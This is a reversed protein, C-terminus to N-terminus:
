EVKVVIYGLEKGKKNYITVSTTGASLGYVILKKGKKKIEASVVSPDSPEALYAKKKLKLTLKEGVGITYDVEEPDPELPEDYLLMKRDADLTGDHELKYYDLASVDVAALKNGKCLLKSLYKNSNVNLATLQNDTCELVTLESNRSVDLTTLNNKSCYLAYLVTNSGTKLSTLGNGECWIKSIETNRSADLTKLQNGSCSLTTLVRNNSLDLTTLLNKDCYLEKLATNYSLDLETLKNEGCYLTELATFSEIGTLDSIGRKGVSIDTAWGIESESLINDMDADFKTVYERFVPDPFHLEDIAVDAAKVMVPAFATAILAILTSFLFKYSKNM